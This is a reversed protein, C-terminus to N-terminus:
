ERTVIIKGAGHYSHYEGNYMADASVPGMNYTGSSVVRVLYYFYQTGSRATTFMNVRDDRIDTYEPYKRYNPFDMGPPLTTLRPNEVEFCAPLIDTIAVNEVYQSTLGTIQIEVLVLDNQKFQNGTIKVGNRDYFNRRVRLYKDEELYSGDRSIGESEWFYYLKGTGQTNLEVTKSAIQGINMKLEKNEFTGIVKGNAKLVGKPDANSLTKAFKGMALFGFTREQTNLYRRTRLLESIHKVMVGIQQNEPDTELLVNLAIAEDRIYSYFSGGFGTLAEEGEFAGPMVEAAKQRNGTLAYAGAILYKSDLSLQETRSS